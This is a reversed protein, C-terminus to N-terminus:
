LELALWCKGSLVGAKKLRERPSLELLYQCAANATLDSSQTPRNSIGWAKRPRGLPDMAHFAPTAVPLFRREMHRQTALARSEEATHPTGRDEFLVIHWGRWPSRIMTLFYQHTAQDWVATLLLLLAGTHINLAGHLVRRARHGTSPVGGQQGKLGYCSTLPPTEPIITEDLRLIGTRQRASLGRKLGRKGPAVHRRASGVRLPAAEV